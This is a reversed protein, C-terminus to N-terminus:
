HTVLGCIGTESERGGKGGRGKGEERGESRKM